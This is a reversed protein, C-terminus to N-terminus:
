TVNCQRCLRELSVTGDNKWDFTGGAAKIRAALETLEIRDFLAAWRKKPPTLHGSASSAPFVFPSQIDGEAARMRRAAIIAAAEPALPVHM